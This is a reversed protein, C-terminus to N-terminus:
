CNKNTKIKPLYDIQCILSEHPIEKELIKKERCIIIVEYLIILYKLSMVPDIEILWSYNFVLKIFSGSHIVIREIYARHVIKSYNLAFLNYRRM